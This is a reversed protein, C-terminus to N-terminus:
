EILRNKKFINGYIIKDNQYSCEFICIFTYDMFVCVETDIIYTFLVCPGKMQKKKRQLMSLFVDLLFENQLLFTLLM